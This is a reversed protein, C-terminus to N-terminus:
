RSGLKMRVGPGSKESPFLFEIGAREFGQKIAHLAKRRRLDKSYLDEEAEL